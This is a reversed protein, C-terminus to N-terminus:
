RTPATLSRSPPPRPQDSAPERGVVGLLRELVAPLDGVPPPVALAADHPPVPHPVRPLHPLVPKFPVAHLQVGVAAPVHTLEVVVAAMPEPLEHPGLLAPGEGPLPLAPVLVPDPHLLLLRLQREAQVLM